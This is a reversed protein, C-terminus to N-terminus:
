RRSLNNYRIIEGNNICVQFRDETYNQCIIGKDIWSVVSHKLFVNKPEGSNTYIGTVGGEKDYVFVRSYVPSFFLNQISEPKDLTHLIAQTDFEFNYTILQGSKTLYYLSNNSSNTLMVADSILNTSQNNLENIYYLDEGILLTNGRFVNSVELKQVGELEKNTTSFPEENIIELLQQYNTNTKSLRYINKEKLLWMYESDISADIGVFGNDVFSVEDLLTDWQYLNTDEGLILYTTSNIEAIDFVDPVQTKLSQTKWNLVQNDYFMATKTQQNWYFKSNLAKWEGKLDENGLNNTIPIPNDVSTPTYHQLYLLNDRKFLVKDLPLFNIFESSPPFSAVKEFKEPLLLLKRMSINTNQNLDSWVTFEETKYGEQTLTLQAPANSSIRLESPSLATDENLKITTSKPITEVNIILNRQLSQSNWNFNYGLSYIVIFPTIVVFFIAYIRFLLQRTGFKM